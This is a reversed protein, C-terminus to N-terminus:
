KLLFDPGHTPYGVAETSKVDDISMKTYDWAIIRAPSIEISVTSTPDNIVASKFEAAVPNAKVLTEPLYKDYIIKEIRKAREGEVLNAKGRFIVAKLMVGGEASDILVSINRNKRINAVKAAEKYTAVYLANGDFYFWVPSVQPNGEANVTALKAIHPRSLFDLIEQKTMDPIRM